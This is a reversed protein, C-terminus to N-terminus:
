QQQGQKVNKYKNWEGAHKNALMQRELEHKQALLQNENTNLEPSYTAAMGGISGLFRTAPNNLIGGAVKGISNYQKALNSMRGLFNEATGTAPMTANVTNVGPIPIGKQTAVQAMAEPNGFHQQFDAMEGPNAQLHNHVATAIANERAAQSAMAANAAPQPATQPAFQGARNVYDKAQQYSQQIGQYMPKAQESAVPPPLGLHSAAVDAALGAPNQMYTKALNMGANFTGSVAPQAIKYGAQAAPVVTNAVANAAGPAMAAMKTTAPIAVGPNPTNDQPAVPQEEPAVPANQDIPEPPQQTSQSGLHALIKQKAEAPDETDIEYHQGQYEYHM